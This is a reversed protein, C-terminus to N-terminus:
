PLGCHPCQNVGEKIRMRRPKFNGTGCQWLSKGCSPCTVMPRCVYVTVIWDVFCPIGFLLLVPLINAKDALAPIAGILVVPLILSSLTIRSRLQATRVLRKHLWEESIPQQRMSTLRLLARRKAGKGAIKEIASNMAAHLRCDLIKRAQRLKPSADRASPGMVGLPRAIVASARDPM